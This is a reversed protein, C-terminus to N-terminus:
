GYVTSRLANKYRGSVALSKASTQPRVLSGVSQLRSVASANAVDSKDHERWGSRWSLGISGRRSTKLKAFSSLRYKSGGKHFTPTHLKFGM